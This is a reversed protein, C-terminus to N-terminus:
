QESFCTLSGANADCCHRKTHALRHCKSLRLVFASEGRGEVTEGEGVVELLKRIEADGLFIQLLCMKDGAGHECILSNGGTEELKKCSVGEAEDHLCEDV